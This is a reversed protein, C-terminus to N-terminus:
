MDLFVDIQMIECTRNFIKKSNECDLELGNIEVTDNKLQLRIRNGQSQHYVIPVQCFSFALSNPRLNISRTIGSIDNFCWQYDRDLFEDKNLLVPNFILHGNDIKIGMELLRVIIDEKVQGTLGPQQAGMNAPTHSYPDTPFGGYQAPSKHLGIGAKIEQYYEKLRSTIKGDAKDEIAKLLNEQVVLLLKSVMHWYISGIGEYKFFTGSRGTFFKHNFITEYIELITNTEQAILEGYEVNDLGRLANELYAANRFESNFHYSGKADKKVIDANNDSMLKSLLKSTQVLNSPIANKELFGPLSRNPYLIYSNQDARYLSSARLADLLNVSQELSLFDSSLVAVQGELMEYLQVISIEDAKLDILNYSNYLKDERKNNKITVDLHELTLNFFNKVDIVPLHKKAGSFGNKYLSSRYDSGVIGLKEFLKKGEIDRNHDQVDIPAEELARKIEIYYHYVSDSLEIKDNKVDVFLQQLFVIFRRIYYLTVMSLGYGVLANNADNWEPRQTNMWIGGGPVFNSLKTLLIVLLKEALNVHYINEDVWILKGDIGIEKTKKRFEQDLETDFEISDHPNKILENFPKIKYPINSYTFIDNSLLKELEGPHFKQSLELLKLLYIVQHDGWYGINSWPDSPDHLEWEFGDRTVRYPNYGDATMANVFKCFMNEVFDPYSYGLAEWNQFIDRWNGQYNLETSGDQKKVDISFHNWPRSPDGHRRGFFLPLYEYCIRIFNSEGSAKALELLNQFDTLKTLSCLEQERKQFVDKNRHQIFECFDDIDLQYNNNFVGGRMVNFLVNSSHRSTVLEDNSVQLGDSNAIIKKLAETNKEIDEDLVSGRIKNGEIMQSLEIVATHDQNIDAIIRWDLTAGPLIEKQSHIYFACKQARIETEAEITQTERFRDLQLSSLLCTVDDLGDAWVMTAKLSESPEARDVPISSLTFLGLNIESDFESRKYADVLTSYGDQMSREVNAPLINRIGDLFSINVSKGNQNIINSKKIFGYKDSFCWGYQFTLNLYENTEEFIIKNGTVNKYLNRTIPYLGLYYPSFPEWLVLRYDKEVALITKSGTVDGSDYIKDDTYYPFLANEPNKRGATLAGNSSIFMWHDSASVITMFFPAMKHYNSIKYFRENNITVYEGKVPLEKFQAETNAIYVPKDKM